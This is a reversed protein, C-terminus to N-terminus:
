WFPMCLVKRFVACSKITLNRHGTMKEIKALAKLVFCTHFHDIFSRVGDTAYYWSGDENQSDLVFNLNREAIKWYPDSRFTVSASTLLFARYASANVVGGVEEVPSYGCSSASPSTPFDRIDQRAHEAISHMIELWKEDGDIQHLLDYAEYAYPTSTILPTHAPVTGGRTVWNFPYGWGYREFGPSRTETLIQAYHVAREYYREEGTAQHLFAFGMAYHADAIPFRLKPSFFRRGAPFFAESLVMPAVALTGLAPHRYYLEKAAGGLLGAYYSQYDYSTEGFTSLWATFRQLVSYLKSELENSM